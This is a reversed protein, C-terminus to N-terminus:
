KMLDLYKGGPFSSKYATLVKESVELNNLETSVRFLLFYHEENAKDFVTDRNLYNYALNGIESMRLNNLFVFLEEMGRPYYNSVDVYRSYTHNKRSLYLRVLLKALHTKLFKNEPYRNLMQLTYFLSRGYDHLIFSSHVLELDIRQQLDSALRETSQTARQMPNNGGFLSDLYAIRQSIHPHSKLSDSSFLGRDSSKGLGGSPSELWKDKFHYRDFHFRSRLDPMHTSEPYDASDLMNLVSEYVHWQYSTNRLLVVAFSDAQHENKRSYKADDYAIDKLVALKGYTEARKKLSKDNRRKMAELTAENVHDLLQHAMEHAMIFALESQTNLRGLLGLNVVMTGEGWCSANPASSRSILMRMPYGERPNKTTIERFVENLLLNLDQDNVFHNSNLRKTLLDAKKEFIEKFENRTAKPFSEQISEIGANIERILAKTHLDFSDMPAYHFEYQGWAKSHLLLLSTLLLFINYFKM